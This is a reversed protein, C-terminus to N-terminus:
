YLLDLNSLHIKGNGFAQGLERFEVIGQNDYMYIYSNPNRELYTLAKDLKQVLDGSALKEPALMLPENSFYSINIM